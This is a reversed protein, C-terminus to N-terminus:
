SSSTISSARPSPVRNAAGSIRAQSLPPSPSTAV